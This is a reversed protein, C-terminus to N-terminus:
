DERDSKKEVSKTASETERRGSALATKRGITIERRKTQGDDESRYQFITGSPRVDAETYTWKSQATAQMEPSFADLNLGELPPPSGGSEKQFKSLKHQLEEQQAQYDRAVEAVINPDFQIIQSRILTLKKPNVKIKEGIEEVVLRSTAEDAQVGGNKMLDRNSGLFFNSLSTIPGIQGVDLYIERFLAGGYEPTIKNGAIPGTMFNPATDLYAHPVVAVTNNRLPQGNKDFHVDYLVILANIQGLEVLRKTLRAVPDQRASRYNLYRMAQGWTYGRDGDVPTIGDDRTLTVFKRRGDPDLLDRLNISDSAILFPNANLDSKKTM